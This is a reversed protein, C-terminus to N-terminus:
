MYMSCLKLHCGVVYLYHLYHRHQYHNAIQSDSQNLQVVSTMTGSISFETNRLPDSESSACVTENAKIVDDVESSEPLLFKKKDLHNLNDTSAEMM